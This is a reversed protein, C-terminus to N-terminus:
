KIVWTIDGQLSEITVVAMSKTGDSDNSVLCNRTEGPKGVMESPCQVTVTFGNSALTSRINEEVKAVDLTVTGAVANRGTFSPVVAFQILLWVVLGVGAGILIRLGIPISM